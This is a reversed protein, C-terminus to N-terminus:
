FRLESGGRLVVQFIPSSSSSSSSSSSHSNLVFFLSVYSEERDLTSELFEKDVKDYHPSDVNECVDRWKYIFTEFDNKQQLQIRCQENHKKIKLELELAKTLDLSSIQKNDVEEEEEEEELFFSTTDEKEEEKTDGDEKTNKEEEDKEEENTADYWGYEIASLFAAGQSVSNKIDLTYQIKVDAGVFARKIADVIIPSRSGGGVMEVADVDNVSAEQLVSRVTDELCKLQAACVRSLLNRDCKYRADTSSKVCDVMFATDKVASLTKKAKVCAKLLRKGLKSDLEPKVGYKSSTEDQFHQFLSLDMHKNAADRVCKEVVVHPRNKDVRILAVTLQNYGHDVILVHRKPTDTKGHKLFHAGALAVGITCCKPSFKQDLKAIKLADRISSMNTVCRPLAFILDSKKGEENKQEGGLLHELFMAVIQISPLKEQLHKLELVDDSSLLDVMNSFSVISSSMTNSAAQGFMRGDPTFSVISPTSVNMEKNRMMLSQPQESTALSMTTALAGLDLGISQTTTVNLSTNTTTTTTTTSSPIPPSTNTNIDSDTM